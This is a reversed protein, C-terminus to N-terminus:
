RGARRQRCDARAGIEGVLVGEQESFRTFGKLLHAEGTLHGVARTLVAVRDDTLDRVVWPGRDYGLRLFRWLHLEREELCTLFGYM